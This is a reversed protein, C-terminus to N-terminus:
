SKGTQDGCTGRAKSENNLCFPCFQGWGQGEATGNAGVGAGWHKWSRSSQTPSWSDLLPTGGPVPGWGREWFDSSRLLYVRFKQGPTERLKLGGLIFEMAPGSVLATLTRRLSVSGLFDGDRYM